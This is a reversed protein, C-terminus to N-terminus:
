TPLLRCARLIYDASHILDYYYLHKLRILVLEPYLVKIDNTIVIILDEPPVRISSFMLQSSDVIYQVSPLSQQITLKLM